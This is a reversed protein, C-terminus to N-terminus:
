RHLVQCLNLISFQSFLWLSPEHPFFLIFLKRKVTPTAAAATVATASGGEAVNMPVSTRSLSGRHFNPTQSGSAAGGSGNGGGGSVAAPTTAQNPQIGSLM